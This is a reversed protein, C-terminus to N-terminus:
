LLMMVGRSADASATSSDVDNEDVIGEVHQNNHLLGVCCDDDMHITSHNRIQSRDIIKRSNQSGPIPEGSRAFV